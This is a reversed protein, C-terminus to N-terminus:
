EAEHWIWVWLSILTSVSQNFIEQTVAPFRAEDLKPSATPPFLSLSRQKSRVCVDIMFDMLGRDPIAVPKIRAVDAKETVRMRAMTSLGTETKGHDIETPLMIKEAVAVPIVADEWL